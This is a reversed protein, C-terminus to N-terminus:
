EAGTEVLADSGVSGGGASDGVVEECVGPYRRSLWRGGRGLSRDVGRRNVTVNNACSDADTPSAAEADTNSATM